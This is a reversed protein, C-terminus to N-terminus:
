ERCMTLTNENLSLRVREFRTLELVGQAAPAQYMPYVLVRHVQRTQEPLDIHMPVSGPVVALSVVQLGNAHRRQLDDRQAYWDPAIDPLQARLGPEYLFVLDMPTPTNRNAKPSAVVRIQRLSTKAVKNDEACPREVVATNLPKSPQSSCAAILLTSTLALAAHRIRFM